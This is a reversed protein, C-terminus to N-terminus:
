LCGIKCSVLKGWIGIPFGIKGSSLFLSARAKDFDPLCIRGLIDCTVLYYGM